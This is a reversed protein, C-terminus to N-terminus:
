PTIQELMGETQHALVITEEKNWSFTVQMSNDEQQGTYKAGYIVFQEGPELTDAALRSKYLENESDSIYYDSLSVSTQGNNEVIVYDQKGDIYFAAIRLSEQQSYELVPQVTIKEGMHKWEGPLLILSEGEIVESNVQFGKVAVGAPLDCSIVMPFNELWYGDYEKGVDLGGILVSGEGSLSIAVDVPEGYAWKENLEPVITLHRKEAFDKIEQWEQYVNGMDNDDSEWLSNKLLTTDEMMYQLENVQKEQFEELAETVQELSFSENMLCLVANVFLNKFEERELLAGFIRSSSNVESLDGLRKSTADGGFWGLFKLGMGYDTDYLLYRYKGDFVTGERYNGEDNVYRYVKVNNHPWDINDIFYEIAMYRAFNNVDMTDCVRQWNDDNQLDADRVWLSFDNYHVTYSKEYIDEANEEAMWDLEGECVVMRGDYEGYKEQFYRDDFSNQLWYVGQYKGNVYVTVSESVLVDPFGTKRALEAILETRVFGYGHDNGANHFSLRQFQNVVTNTKDSVLKPLFEYSFENVNDYDYRATLRFSKQNKARTINGYIKLGCNQSLISIGDQNYIAVHVPLETDSLYNAPIITGLTDVDPNAAMYEDFQRGRVFIGEEYGFLAEEDGTISVVYTTSFRNDCEELIFDRKLVESSTGDPYLCLFQFSYTTTDEKLTLLLPETYQITNGNELSPVEGNTTYLITAPITTEIALEIDEHYIGSEHSFSVETRRMYAQCLLIGTIALMTVIGIASLAVTIRRGRM